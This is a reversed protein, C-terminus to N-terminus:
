RETKRRPDIVEPQRRLEQATWARTAPRRKWSLGPEFCLRGSDPDFWLEGDRARAGRVWPFNRDLNDVLHDRVRRRLLLPLYERALQRDVEALVEGRTAGVRCRLLRLLRLYCAHEVDGNRWHHTGEPRRHIGTRRPLDEPNTQRM